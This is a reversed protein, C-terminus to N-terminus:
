VLPKFSVDQVAKGALDRMVFRLVDAGANV